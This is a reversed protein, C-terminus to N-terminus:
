LSNLNFRLHLDGTLQMQLYTQDSLNVYPGPYGNTNMRFQIVARSSKKIHNIRAPSIFVSHKTTNVSLPNGDMNTQIGILNLSNDFLSDTVVSSLPDLFYIQTFFNIPLAHDVFLHVTAYSSTDLDGSDDGDEGFEIDLTDSETVSKNPHMEVKKVDIIKVTLEIKSPSTSFTVNNGGPSSFQELYLYITDSM